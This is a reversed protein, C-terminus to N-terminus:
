PDTGCDVDANLCNEVLVALKSTQQWTNWFDAHATYPAGSSVTIGSSSTGVPYEFRAILRPLKHPFGAPCAGDSPFRM